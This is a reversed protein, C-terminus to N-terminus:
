RQQLAHARIHGHEDCLVYRQREGYADGVGFAIPDRQL